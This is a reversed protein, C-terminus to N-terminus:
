FKRAPKKETKVHKQEIQIPTEKQYETISTIHQQKIKSRM